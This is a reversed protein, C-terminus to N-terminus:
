NNQLEQKRKREHQQHRQAQDGHSNLTQQSQTLQTSDHQNPMTSSMWTPPHLDTWALSKCIKRPQSVFSPLFIFKNPLTNHYHYPHNQHHYFSCHSLSLLLLVVRQPFM